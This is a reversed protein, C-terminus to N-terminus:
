NVWARMLHTIGYAFAAVAPFTILWSLFIENAISWRVRRANKAVAAGMISGSIVQTTSAPFGAFGCLLITSASTLEASLGQPNQIRYFQMGVRKLIRRGGMLVGAALAFGVLFRLSMPVGTVPLVGIIPILAVMVLQGDNSGHACSVCLCSLIHLSEAVPRVRTTLWTGLWRLLSTLILSFLFGLLPSMMLVLVIILVAKMQINHFGWAAWCAGTLGGLLAHSNSTPWARWWSFVGWLFSCGLAVASILLVEDKAGHVLAYGLVKGSITAAVASGILLAGIFEFLACLSFATIPALTRTSVITAVISSADRFGNSFAFILGLFILVLASGHYFYASNM